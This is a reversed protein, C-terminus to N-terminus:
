WVTGGARFVLGWGEGGRGEGGRESRRSVLCNLFGPNLATGNGFMCSPQGKSPGQMCVCVRCDPYPPAPFILCGCTLLCCLM